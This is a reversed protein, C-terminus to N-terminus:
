HNNQGFKFGRGGFQKMVDNSIRDGFFVFLLCVVVLKLLVVINLVTRPATTGEHADCISNWYASGGGSWYAAIERFSKGNQRQVMMAYVSAKDQNEPCWAYANNQPANEPEEACEGHRHLLEGPHDAEYRICRSDYYQPLNQYAGYAGSGEYNYLDYHGGSSEVAKIRAVFEEMSEIGGDPQSPDRATLPAAAQTTMFSDVVINEMTTQVIISFMCFFLLNISATFMMNLGNEALDNMPKVHRVGSFIFSTFSFLVAIYFSIYAKAIQLTMIILLFLIVFAFIFSPIITYINFFAELGHSHGVQLFLPALLSAGKQVVMTPDSISKQAADATAGVSMGGLSTFLDRGFSNMIEGWHTLLFILFGYMLCKYIFWKFLGLTDTKESDLTKFMAGIALDITILVMFLKMMSERVVDLGKICAAVIADSVEKLPAALNIASNFIMDMPSEANASHGMGSGMAIGPCYLAPDEAFRSTTDWFYSQGRMDRVEFHLHPGTSNGTSGVKGIPQNQQVVEGEYVEISNEQMHGYLTAKEYQPHNIVVTNGYGSVWGASVVEGDAAALVEQGEIGDGSIDAGSHGTMTGFIPHIRMGFPSTTEYPGGDVPYSFIGEGSNVQTAEEAHGVGVSQFSLCMSVCLIAIIRYLTLAPNQQM